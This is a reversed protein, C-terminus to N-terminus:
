PQLELNLRETATLTMELGFWEGETFERWATILASQVTGNLQTHAAFATIYPAFLRSALRRATPQDNRSLYRRMPIDWFLEAVTASRYVIRPAPPIDSFHVGAAVIAPPGPLIYQTTGGAKATQWPDVVKGSGVGFVASTDIVLEALLASQDVIEDIRSVDPSPM